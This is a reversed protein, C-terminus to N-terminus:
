PRLKCLRMASEVLDSMSFPKSIFLSATSEAVRRAQEEDVYGSILITQLSPNETKLLEILEAGKMGAMVVDAIV